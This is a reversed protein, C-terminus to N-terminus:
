AKLQIKLKLNELNRFERNIRTMKRKRKLELGKKKELIAM